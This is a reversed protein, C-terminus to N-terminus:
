EKLWWRRLHDVEGKREDGEGYRGEGDCVRTNACVSSWSVQGHDLPAPGVVKGRALEVLAARTVAGLTRALVVLRASRGGGGGRGSVTGARGLGHLDLGGDLLTRVVLLGGRRRLDKRSPGLGGGGSRGLRRRSRSRGFSSVVISAIGRALAEKANVVIGAAIGARGLSRGVITSGVALLAPQVTSNRTTAPHTTTDKKTEIVASTESRPLGRGRSIAEAKEERHQASGAKVFVPDLERLELGERQVGRDSLLARDEAGALRVKRM